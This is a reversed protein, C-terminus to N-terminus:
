CSCIINSILSEASSIPNLLHLIHTHPRRLQESQNPPASPRTVGTVHRPRSCLLYFRLRSLRRTTVLLPPSSPHTSTLGQQQDTEAAESLLHLKPATYSDSMRRSNRQNVEKRGTRRVDGGGRTRKRMRNRDGKEEEEKKGMLFSVPSPIFDHFTQTKQYM